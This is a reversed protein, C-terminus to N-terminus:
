RVSSLMSTVDALFLLFILSLAHITELTTYMTVILIGSQLCRRREAQGPLSIQDLGSRLLALLNYGRLEPIRIDHSNGRQLPHLAPELESLIGIV